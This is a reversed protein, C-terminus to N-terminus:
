EFQGPPLFSIVLGDVNFHGDAVLQTAIEQENLSKGNELVTIVKWKGQLLKNDNAETQAFCLGLIMVLLNLM